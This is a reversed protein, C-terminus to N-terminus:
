EDEREPRNLAHVSAPHLLGALILLAVVALGVALVTTSGDRFSWAIGLWVLQAFLVPGRSWPLTRNMGWACVMLAVGYATFFLATTVGMVLRGHNVSVVEAVGLMATVLGQVATLGAAAALPAPAGWRSFPSRPAGPESPQV